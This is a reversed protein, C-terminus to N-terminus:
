PEPNAEDEEMEVEEELDPENFDIHIKDVNASDLPNDTSDLFEIKPPYKYCNLDVNYNEPKEFKGRTVGTKPDSYVLQMYRAVLPLGTRGGQGQAGEFHIRMDRGGVWAGTVLDHAVGVYWGDAYNNSTGTKGGIENNDALGYSYLRQSTGGPEEVGGRLLYTMTYANSDAMVREEKEDKTFDELINGEHDEIKNIWRVKKLKGDNVFVGYAQVMEFLSISGTGLAISLDEPLDETNIGFKKATKIVAKPGVKEALQISVTNISQALARRLSVPSYSFGRNSNQPEWAERKGNIVTEYKLPKDVIKTCAGMGSELATAYVIPKFTSGPQRRSQWVHDYKFFDWNTGGVWAIVEGTKPKISVLGCHLQEMVSKISDIPTLRRKVRKGGEFVNTTTPKYMIAMAQEETMGDAIAEKYRYSQKALTELEIELPVKGKEKSEKRQKKINRDFWYEGYLSIKFSKQIQVM